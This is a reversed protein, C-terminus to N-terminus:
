WSIEFSALFPLFQNQYTIDSYDAKSYQYEESLGWQIYYVRNNLVYFALGLQGSGEKDENIAIAGEFGNLSFTKINNYKNNRLDNAISEKTPIKSFDKSAYVVTGGEASPAGEFSKAFRLIEYANYDVLEKGGKGFIPVQWFSFDSPYKIKIKFEKNEYVPWDTTKAQLEELSPLTLSLFSPTIQPQIPPSAIPRSQPLFASSPIEEPQRFQYMLYSFISLTFIISIALYKNKKLSAIM